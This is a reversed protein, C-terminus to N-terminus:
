AAGSGGDLEMPISPLRGVEQVENDPGKRCDLKGDVTGDGGEERDDLHDRAASKCASGGLRNPCGKLHGPSRSALPKRRYDGKWTM